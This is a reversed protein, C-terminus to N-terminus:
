WQLSDLYSMIDAQEALTLGTEVMIQAPDTVCADATSCLIWGSDEYIQAAAPKGNALVMLLGPFDEDLVVSSLLPHSLKQM